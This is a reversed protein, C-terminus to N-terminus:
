SRLLGRLAEPVGSRWRDRAVAVSNPVPRFPLYADYVLVLVMHPQMRRIRSIAEEVAEQPFDDVFFVAAVFAFGQLKSTAVDHFGYGELGSQRLRWLLADITVADKCVIAVLPRDGEPQKRHM